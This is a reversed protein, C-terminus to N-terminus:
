DERKLGNSRLVVIGYLLLAGAVDAMWDATEPVRAPVLSQRWEDAAALALVVVIPWVRGPRRGARLWGWATLAGLVGYLVFHAVKDLPLPSDPTRLSSKGGIFLVVAAWLVAPLYAVFFRKM